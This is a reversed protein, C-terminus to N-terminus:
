LDCWGLTGVKEVVTYTKSGVDALTYNITAFSFSGGALNSVTEILTSGEYLEFEFEGAALDRGTLTKAGSLDLSGTALYPVTITVTAINSVYAGAADKTVLKYTFDVTYTTEGPDAPRSSNPLYTFKGTDYNFSTIEGEGVGLPDVIVIEYDQVSRDALPTYDSGARDDYPNNDVKENIDNDLITDPIIYPNVNDPTTYSDDNATPQAKIEPIPFTRDALTNPDEGGMFHNTYTLVASENTDIIGYYGEKLTLTYQNPTTGAMLDGITWTIQTKGGGADTAIMDDGLNSVDFYAPVIDTVVANEAVKDIIESGVDVYINDIDDSPTSTAYYMSPDSAAEGM